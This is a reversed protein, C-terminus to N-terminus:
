ELSHPDKQPEGVNTMTSFAEGVESQTLDRIGEGIEEATHEETKGLAENFMELIEQERLGSSLKEGIQAIADKYQPFIKQMFFIRTEKTGERDYFVGTGNCIQNAILELENNFLKSCSIGLGASNATPDVYFEGNIQVVEGRPGGDTEYEEEQYSKKNFIFPAVKAIVTQGEPVKYRTQVIKNNDWLNHLLEEAEATVEPLLEDTREDAERYAEVREAKDELDWFEEVGYKTCIEADARASAVERWYFEYGSILESMTEETFCTGAYIKDIDDASVEGSLVKRMTYSLSNGILGKGM